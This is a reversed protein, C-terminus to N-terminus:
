SGMVEYDAEKGLGMAWVEIVMAMCQCPVSKVSCQTLKDFDQMTYSGNFFLM